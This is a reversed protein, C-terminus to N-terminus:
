AADFNLRAMALLEARRAAGLLAPAPDDLLHQARQVLVAATPATCHVVSAELGLMDVLGDIKGTNSTMVLFPTALFAAAITHHFRGSVLLRASAIAHLWEQETYATLLRYEARCRRRFAAAFEVDDVAMWANAGILVDIGLGQRTLSDVLGAVADLMAPTWSVSGAIVVRGGGDTHRGPWHREIFLPLCDFGQVAQAGLATVTRASLRERVVVRDMCRYVQAYLGTLPDGQLPRDDTPFCSHNVIHVERALRTKAIYATYLLGLVLASRGHLSGEGNVVVRETEELMRLLAPNAARFRAYIAEDDFQEPRGPLAALHQMTRIPVSLLAGAATRLGEHLALSTGTCGWHYWYSTDNLLLVRPGDSQAVEHYPQRLAATHLATEEHLMGTGRAALAAAVEAIVAQWGTMGPVKPRFLRLSRYWLSDTERAFWRWDAALPLLVWTEVGLAGALHVTSNDVSIVLDLAKLAAAFGDMDHLPDIQEFVQLPLGSVAVEAAIDGYQLSIFTAGPLKFLPSLATLELSRAAKMRASAGGRWSIGIKLGPGLAAFRDRWQAVQQPEAILYAAGDGFAAADRRFYMPLSASSIRYDIAGLSPRWVFSDMRERAMVECALFSRAFLPLLRPECEIVCRGVGAVLQPICSAFMIEDGIGQEGYVLVAKGALPEGGWKPFPVRRPPTANLSLMANYRWEYEHWGEAFRGAALLEVGRQMHLDGNAPYFSLGQEIQTLAAARQGVAVYASALNRHAILSSPDIDLARTCAAIAGAFDGSDLLVVGLNEWAERYDARLGIAARYSDAAAALQEANQLVVARNFHYSPETPRLKITQELLALGQELRGSHALLIGLNHLASPHAPSSELIKRYLVEAARLDGATQCQVALNLAKTIADVADTRQEGVGGGKKTYRSSLMTAKRCAM